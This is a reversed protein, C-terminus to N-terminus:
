LKCFACVCHSVSSQVSEKYSSEFLKWIKQLDLATAERADSDTVYLRVHPPIMPLSQLQPCDELELYRLKSLNDIYHTPLRVFNNGSLILRELSILCNIDRPISNDTLNCYSLDLVTLSSLGSVFRPLTLGTTHVPFFSFKKGFPLQFEWSSNSAQGSCGSLSLKKINGLQLLSPDLVGIATGSLDIDVLAKNQNIGDPLTRIKSCRSINLIRLTKLNSISNPLCLLNECNTVILETICTMNKGFEPLREIKSCDSLFLMKLSFMELKNPITELDICGM